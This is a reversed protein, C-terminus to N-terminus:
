VFLASEPIIFKPPLKIRCFSCSAENASEVWIALMPRMTSSISFWILCELKREGTSPSSFALLSARFPSSM